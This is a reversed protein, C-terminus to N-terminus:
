ERNFLYVTDPKMVLEQLKISFDLIEDVSVEADTEEDDSIKISGRITDSDISSVKIWDEESEDDTQAYVYANDPYQRFAERFYDFREKACVATKEETAYLSGYMLKDRDLENLRCLNVSGDTKQGKYLFLVADSPDFYEDTIGEDPYYKLAEQAPLWSFQIRNYKEDQMLAFSKKSDPLEGRILILEAAFCMIDCYETYNDKTADFCILERIGSCNLGTTRIFVRDSDAQQYVNLRYLYDVTPTVSSSAQIEAWKGSLLNDRIMVAPSEPYLACIIRIQYQLLQDAPINCLSTVACFGQAQSLELKEKEDFYHYQRFEEPDPASHVAIIIDFIEKDDNLKFRVIKKDEMEAELEIRFGAKKIANKMEGPDMLEEEPIYAFVSSPNTETYGHIIGSFNEGTNDPLKQNLYETYYNNSNRKDFAQAIRLAEKYFYEALQASDYLNSESYLEFEKPLVLGTSDDDAATFLRYAGQAFYYKEMHNHCKLWYRLGHSFINLGTYVDTVSYLSLLIGIKEFLDVRDRVLPYLRKADAVADTYNGKEMNFVIWEEYADQPVDSCRLQGSFIPESLKRAKEEDGFALAISVQTTQECAKCDKLTDEPEKLFSGYESEPLFNGTDLSKKELLYKYARLSYGYKLCRARFEESLVKIQEYSINYFYVANNITYKFDWMLNRKNEDQIDPNSDFVSLLEPFMIVADVADYEFISEHIYKHRFTFQWEAEKEQDAAAIAKKLVRLAAKGKQADAYEDLYKEADFM